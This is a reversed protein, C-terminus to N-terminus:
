KLAIALLLVLVTVCFGVVPGGLLFAGFCLAVLALAGLTMLIFLLIKM